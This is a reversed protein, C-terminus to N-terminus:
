ADIIGFEIRIDELFRILVLITVWLCWIEVLDPRDLCLILRGSIDYDRQYLDEVDWFSDSVIVVVSFSLSYFIWCIWVILDYDSVDVYICM